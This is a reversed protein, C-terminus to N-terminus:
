TASASLADRAGLAQPLRQHDGEFQTEFADIGDLRLQM